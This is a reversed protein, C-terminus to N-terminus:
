LNSLSTFVPTAMPVGKGQGEYNFIHLPSKMLAFLLWPLCVNLGLLSTRVLVWNIYLVLFFAGNTSTPCWKRMRSSLSRKHGRFPLPIILVKYEDLISSLCAIRSLGGRITTSYLHYSPSTFQTNLYHFIVKVTCKSCGDKQSKNSIWWSLSNGVMRNIAMLYKFRKVARTYIYIYIHTYTPSFSSCSFFCYSSFSAIFSSSLLLESSMSTLSSRASLSTDPRAPSLARQSVVTMTRILPGNPWAENKAETREIMGKKVNSYERECERVCRVDRENWWVWKWLSHFHTTSQCVKMSVSVTVNECVIM